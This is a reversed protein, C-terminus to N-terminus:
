KKNGLGKQVLSIRIFVM